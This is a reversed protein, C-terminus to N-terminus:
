GELPAICAPEDSRPDNVLRGIRQATLGDGTYPRLLATLAGASASEPALWADWADPALIVPMRDHIPELTENAETTILTCSEVADGQPSKWREWLGAIAFPADDALRIFWPQKKGDATKQWEYFGDAAVLCRRRRFAARFAPKEAVTEARANIMRNGIAPEKAWYPVLGWRLLVLERGDGDEARRVAAVDQSPAINYRPALNPLDRVGFAEALRHTPTRLTFRGCM